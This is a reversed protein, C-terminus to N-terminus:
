SNSPVKPKYELNSIEPVELLDLNAIKDNVSNANTKEPLAQNDFSKKRAHQIASKTTIVDLKSNQIIPLSM